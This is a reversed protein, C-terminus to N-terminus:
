VYLSDVNALTTSAFTSRAVLFHSNHDIINNNYNNSVFMRLKGSMNIPLIVVLSFFAYVSLLALLYLQFTLFISGQMGIRSRVGKESFCSYFLISYFLVLVVVHDVQMYGLTVFKM